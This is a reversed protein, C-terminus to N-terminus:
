PKVPPHEPMEVGASNCINQENGSFTNGTVTGGAWFILVGCAVYKEPTYFNDKVTNSIIRGHAGFGLQIGNQGIRDTAGIGQVYNNSITCHTGAENCTIGNKGYNIVISDEVTARAKLARGYGSQIFIALQTQCGLLNDPLRVDEVKVNRIIGSSARYFIGMFGPACGSFTQAAVEGDVTLSEISVDRAQNVLIIYAQPSGSYLSPATLSLSSPRVIVDDRAVGVLRIGPKSITVQEDYVGPCVIITDGPSAADVADQISSFASVDADCDGVVAKGDDDVVLVGPVAGM